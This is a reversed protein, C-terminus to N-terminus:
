KPAGEAYFNIVEDEGCGNFYVEIEASSNLDQIYISGAAISGDACYQISYFNAFVKGLEPIFFNASGRYGNSLSVSLEEVRYVEGNEALVNADVVCSVGSNSCTQTVKSTAVVGDFDIITDVVLVSDTDSETYNVSGNTKIVNDVYDVNHYKVEVLSNNLSISYNDDDLIFQYNGSLFIDAFSVPSCYDSASISLNTSSGSVTATGAPSCEGDYQFTPLTSTGFVDEIEQSVGSLIDALMEGHVISADYKMDYDALDEQYSVFTVAKLAKQMELALESTGEDTLEIDATEGTYDTSFASTSEDDSGCGSLIVSSSVAMSLLLKNLEM